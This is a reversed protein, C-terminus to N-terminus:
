NAPRTNSMKRKIPNTNAPSHLIQLTRTAEIPATAQTMTTTPNLALHDATIKTVM